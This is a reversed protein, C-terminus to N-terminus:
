ATPEQRDTDTNTLEAIRQDAAALAALLTEDSPEVYDTM